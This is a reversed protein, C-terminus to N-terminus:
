NCYYWHKGIQVRQSFSKTWHRENGYEKGATTYHKCIKKSKFLNHNRAVMNALARCKALADNEAPVSYEATWSFQNKKYVEDRPAGRNLVVVMTAIQDEITSNRAEFYCNYALAEVDKNFTKKVSYVGVFIFFFIMLVVGTCLDRIMKDRGELM